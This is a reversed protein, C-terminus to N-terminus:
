LAKKEISVGSNRWAWFYEGVYYQNEAEFKIQLLINKFQM